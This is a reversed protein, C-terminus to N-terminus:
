CTAEGYDGYEVNGFADDIVGKLEGTDRKRLLCYDDYETGFYECFESETEFKKNDSKILQCYDGYDIM